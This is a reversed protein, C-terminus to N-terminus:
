ESVKTIFNLVASGNSFLAGLLFVAALATGMGPNIGSVLICGFTFLGGALLSPFPDDGNAVKNTAVIAVGAAAVGATSFNSM